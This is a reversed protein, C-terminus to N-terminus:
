LANALTAVEIGEQMLYNIIVDAEDDASANEVAESATQASVREYNMLDIADTSYLLLDMIQEDAQETQAMQTGPTQPGVDKRVFLHIGAYISLFLTALAFYPKFRVSAARYWPLAPAPQHLRDAVRSVVGDFYHDPVQFPNDKRLQEWNPKNNMAVLKLMIEIRQVM